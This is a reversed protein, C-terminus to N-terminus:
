PEIPVVLTYVYDSARTPRAGTSLHTPSGDDGLLLHPRARLYLLETTVSEDDDERWQVTGDAVDSKLSALRFLM